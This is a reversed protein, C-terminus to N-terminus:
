KTRLLDIVKPKRKSLNVNLKWPIKEVLQSARTKSVSNWGNKGEVWDFFIFKM